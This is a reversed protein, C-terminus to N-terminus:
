WKMGQEIAQRLEILDDVKKIVGGQVVSIAGTEESVVLVLADTQESVGVAARHRMGYHPPIDPNESIPLLCRAAQIRESAILMAGDHLPSNKFFINEILRRSVDANIADGTEAISELSSDRVLVILAGTGTESMKGCAQALEDLCIKSMWKGKKTMFITGLLRSKQIRQLYRSGFLLLFRRIEQQFVIFLALVGVSMVSGLLTSFLKLNLARTIQYIFYLVLIALFITMANTRRIIKFLQYLVFGVLLIDIADRIGFSHIYDLIM